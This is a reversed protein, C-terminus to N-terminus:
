GDFLFQTGPELTVMDGSAISLDGSIRYTGMAYTGSLDGNLVNGEIVSVSLAVSIGEPLDPSILEMGDQILGYVSNNAEINITAMELPQITM